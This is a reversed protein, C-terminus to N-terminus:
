PASRSQIRPSVGSFDVEEWQLAQWDVFRVVAAFDTDGHHDFFLQEFVDLPCELGADSGSQWHTALDPVHLSQVTTWGLM